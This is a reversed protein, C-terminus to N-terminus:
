GQVYFKVKDVLQRYSVVAIGLIFLPLCLVGLILRGGLKVDTWYVPHRVEPEDTEVVVPVCYAIVEQPAKPAVTRKRAVKKAPM